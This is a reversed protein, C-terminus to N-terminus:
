EPEPVRWARIQGNFSTSVIVKGDASAQLESFAENKYTPSACIEGGSMADFVVVEGGAYKYWHRVFPLAGRLGWSGSAQRFETTDCRRTACWKGGNLFCYAPGALHRTKGTSLDVLGYGCGVMKGNPSLVPVGPGMLRRPAFQAQLSELDLLQVEQSSTGALLVVGDPTLAPQAPKDLASDKHLTWDIVKWVTVRQSRPDATCLVLFMGDPSFRCPRSAWAHGTKVDLHKILRGTTTEYVTIGRHLVALLKGDPSFYLSDAGPPNLGPPTIVKGSELNWLRVWGARKGGGFHRDGVALMKGNDSIAISSYPPRGNRSLDLDGITLVPQWSNRRQLMCGNGVFAILGLILIVATAATRWRGQLRSKLRYGGAVLFTAMGSTCAIIALVSLMHNLVPGYGYGLILGMFVMHCLWFGIAPLLMAMLWGILLTSRRNCRYAVLVTAVSVLWLALVALEDPDTAWSALWLLVAIGATAVFIGQLSFRWPHRTPLTKNESM